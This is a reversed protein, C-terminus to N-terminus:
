NTCARFLGCLIIRLLFALSLKGEIRSLSTNGPIHKPTEEAEEAEAEAEAEAEEEEEEAEEEEEEEAQPQRTPKRREDARLEGTGNCM